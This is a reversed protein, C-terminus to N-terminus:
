PVQCVPWVPAYEVIHRLCLWVRELLACSRSVRVVHVCEAAASSSVASQCNNNPPPPPNVSPAPCSVDPTNAAAQLPKTGPVYAHVHVTSVLILLCYAVNCWPASPQNLCTALCNGRRANNPVAGTGHM